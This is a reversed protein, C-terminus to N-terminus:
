ENRRHQVRQLLMCAEPHDLVGRKAEVRANRPFDPDLAAVRQVGDPPVRLRLERSADRERPAVVGPLDVPVLTGISTGLFTKGRSRFDPEAMKERVSPLRREGASGSGFLFSASCFNRRKMKPHEAATLSRDPPRATRRG